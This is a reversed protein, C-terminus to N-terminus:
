RLGSNGRQVEVVLRQEVVSGESQEPHCANLTRIM